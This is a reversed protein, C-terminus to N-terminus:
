IVLGFQFKEPCGMLFDKNQLHGYEKIRFHRARIVKMWNTGGHGPSLATIDATDLTAIGIETILDHNREFAEIDVCIFVVSDEPTFPPPKNIDLIDSATLHTAAIQVKHDPKSYGVYKINAIQVLKRSVSLTEM